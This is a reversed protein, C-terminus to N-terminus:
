EAFLRGDCRWETSRSDRARPSLERQFDAMPPLKRQPEGRETPRVTTRLDAMPRGISGALRSLPNSHESM